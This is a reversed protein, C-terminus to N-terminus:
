VGAKRGDDRPHCTDNHAELILEIAPLTWSATVPLFWGCECAIHGHIRYNDDM